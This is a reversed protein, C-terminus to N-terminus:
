QIMREYASTYFHENISQVTKKKGNHPKIGKLSEWFFLEYKCSGCVSVGKARCNYFTDESSERSQHVEKRLDQIVTTQEASEKYQSAITVGKQHILAMVDTFEQNPSSVQPTLHTWTFWLLLM